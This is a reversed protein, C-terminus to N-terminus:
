TTESVCRKYQFCETQSYYAKVYRSMLKIKDFEIPIKFLITYTTFGLFFSSSNKSMNVIYINLFISILYM